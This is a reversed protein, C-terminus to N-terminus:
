NHTRTNILNDSVLKILQANDTSSDGNEHWVSAGRKGLLFQNEKRTTEYWM